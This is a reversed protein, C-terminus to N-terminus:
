KMKEKAISLDNNNKSEPYFEEVRSIYRIIGLLNTEYKFGKDIKSVEEMILGHYVNDSYKM